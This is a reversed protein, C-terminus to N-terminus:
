DFATLLRIPQSSRGGAEVRLEASGDDLVPPMQTEVVYFGVYGPALEARTVALTQGNLWVSVPATVRPPNNVPAALGAPWAPEVRGLGTLLIQIRDGSRLPQSPDLLEGTEAHVLLPAGERDTFIAPSTAALDLDLRVQRGEGSLDLGLSATAADYPIQFQSEDLSSSLVPLPRGGLQAENVKLGLVSVLSGPAATRTNLDAASILAPQKRRHPAHTLFVGEGALSVYLFNGGDNLMVDLAAERPLNGGLRVWSTPAGASELNNVTYYVGRETALYIAGTPRDAALGLIEQAPLDSTLDDWRLGGDVSRYLRARDTQRVALMSEARSFDRWALSERREVFRSREVWAAKAGPLWEVLAGNEWEALLGRGAQPAALLRTLRLNPLGVNLSFWSDGGDQSAWLGERTIVALRDPDQASLALGLIQEGILQTQGRAILNTWNRGGDESRWLWQGTAFVRYPSGTSAYARAGTEPLRDVVAAQPESHPMPADVPTWDTFNITRYLRGNRLQVELAQGDAAFWVAALPGGSFGARAGAVVATGIARWNLAYEYSQATAVAAFALTPLWVRCVTDFLGM